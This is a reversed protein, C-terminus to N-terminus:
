AATITYTDDATKGASPASLTMIYTQGNTYDAKTTLTAEGDVLSVTVPGAVAGNGDGTDITKNTATGTVTVTVSNGQSTLNTTDNVDAMVLKAINTEGDAIASAATNATTGNLGEAGSNWLILNYSSELHNLLAGMMELGDRDSIHLGGLNGDKLDIIYNRLIQSLAM